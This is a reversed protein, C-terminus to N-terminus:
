RECTLPSVRAHFLGGGTHSDRGLMLPGRVATAFHIELLARLAGILGGRGLPASVFGSVPHSVVEVHVPRPLQRRSCEMLLDQELSARPDTALYETQGKWIRSPGIM